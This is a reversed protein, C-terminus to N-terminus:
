KDKSTNRTYLLFLICTFSLPGEHVICVHVHVHVPMHLCICMLVNCMVYECGDLCVSLLVHQM